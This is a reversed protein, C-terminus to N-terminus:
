VPAAAAMTARCRMQRRRWRWGDAREPGTSGAVETRATGGQTAVLGPKLNGDCAACVVPGGFRPRAAHILRAFRVKRRPPEVGGLPMSAGQRESVAWSAFLRDGTVAKTWGLPRGLLSARAPMVRGGAAITSVPSM